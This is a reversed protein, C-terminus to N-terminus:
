FFYKLIHCDLIEGPSSIIASLPPPCYRKDPEKIANVSSLESLPSFQCAFLAGNARNTKSFPIVLLVFVSMVSLTLWERAFFDVTNKEALWDVIQGLVSYLMAESIALLTTLIALVVLHIEVGRVYHRCFQYIGKPPEVPHQPPYPDILREFFGLM